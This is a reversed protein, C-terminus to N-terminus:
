ARGAQARQNPHGNTEESEFLELRKNEYGRRKAKIEWGFPINDGYVTFGTSTREGVYITGEGYPSLFVQYSVDTNVCELFIPDLEIRCVGNEVKAEGLDGFYATPMEYADLLRKGYNVTSQVCNKHGDVTLDRQIHLSGELSHNGSSKLQFMYLEDPNGATLLINGKLADLYLDGISSGRYAGYISTDLEGGPVSDPSFVVRGEEIIVNATNGESVLTVGSISGTKINSGSITTEGDTLNTFTVFGSMNISDAVLSITRDTMTFNSASTGSKVLWNIKNATQEVKSVSSIIEGDAKSVEQRIAGATQDIKSNLGEDRKSVEQRIASATQTIESHLAKDGDSVETRIQAATQSIESKLNKETDTLRSNTEDITITLENTKGRLRQIQMQNSSTVAIRSQNGSASLTDNSGSSRKEMLVAQFPGGPANVQVISGAHVAPNSVTKASFPVYRFDKVADFIKQVTPRLEADSEAYLLPNDLIEYDSEASNLPVTVGVDNSTVHVTLARLAPTTYDAVSCEWLDHLTIEYDVDAYWDFELEGRPNFRAFTASLEAIWQLVVRGTIGTGQANKQILYGENLFSGGWYPVGLKECLGAAIRGATLPFALGNFWNSVDVDFLGMRDYASVTLLSENKREPKEALFVGVQIYEFDTEVLKVPLMDFTEIKFQALLKGRLAFCTRYQIFSALKELAFGSLPPAETPTLNGTGTDIAYAALRPMGEMVTYLTNEVAFVSKVPGTPQAPDNQLTATGDEIKWIRLFPQRDYGAYLTDGVICVALSRVQRAIREYEARGTEVGEWYTFERGTLVDIAGSFNALEFKMFASAAIGIQFDEAPNLSEEYQLSGEMIDAQSLRFGGGFDLLTKRQLTEDKFLNINM